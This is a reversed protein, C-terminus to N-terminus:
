KSKKVSMQSKLSGKIKGNQNRKGQSVQLDYEFGVPDCLGDKWGNCSDPNFWVASHIKHRRNSPLTVNFVHAGNNSNSFGNGIYCTSNPDNAKFAIWIGGVVTNQAYDFQDTTGAVPKRIAANFSLHTLCPEMAHRWNTYAQMKKRWTLTPTFSVQHNQFNGDISFMSLFEDYNLPPCCLDDESPTPKDPCDIDYEAFGEDFNMNNDMSVIFSYTNNAQIVVQTTVLRWADLESNGGPITVPVSQGVVTGTVGNGERIEIRGVGTSNARTSFYGGVTVNGSCQPTFSQYFNNSGDTIDLYHRPSNTVGSADSRPGANGYDYGNPGDVRVVNSQNGSGLTWPAVSHNINNGFSTPPNSEFDGNILINQGNQAHLSSFNILGIAVLVISFIRNIKKM